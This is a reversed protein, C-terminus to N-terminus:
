ELGPLMTDQPVLHRLITGYTLVLVVKDGTQLRIPLTDEGQVKYHFLCEQGNVVMRDKSVVEVVADDPLGLEGRVLRAATLPASEDANAGFPPVEFTLELM